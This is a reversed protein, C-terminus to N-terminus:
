FSGPRVLAGITESLGDAISDEQVKRFTFIADDARCEFKKDDGSTFAKVLRIWAKSISASLQFEWPYVSLLQPTM